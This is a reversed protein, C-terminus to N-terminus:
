PEWNKLAVRDIKGTGNKPLEDLCVYSQPVKFKALYAKCHDKVQTESFATDEKVVLFARGVEGWKEHKTPIVAVEQIGEMQRIVREVEAPYVNEGGSIFMNKIRDVVYLYGEEDQQVLDGTHLWGEELAKETASPNQWYGPTVMPGKILLEGTEHPQAEEKSATLIRTQVYFNPKGISGKKRYADTHHLSTLNPGAETMGYGQRIPIGKEQWTEILPISMPEGGVIMYRLQPLETEGFSAHDAMMKLMTPVGMFLTVEEKTLVELVRAADFSPLMLTTAGRHLFPTLLVNWGGTHFLPMVNLTVDQSTLDLRLATNVSNWFLMKYTYLAGKPFGTTGSTYLIFIPDDERFIHHSLVSTPRDERLFAELSHWVMRHPVQQYHPAQQQLSEQFHEQVIFAKPQSDQILFDIEHPSLRWNMPVLIVGTKQAAVFFVVFTLNNEALLGVRDGPQLQWENQMLNALRAAKQDLEGYTLVEGTSMDKLAVKEPRYFAWRSVWDWREKM